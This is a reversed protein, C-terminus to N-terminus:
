DAGGADLGLIPSWTDPRFRVAVKTRLIDFSMTRGLILLRFKHQIIEILRGM